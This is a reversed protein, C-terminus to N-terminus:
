TWRALCLSRWTTPCSSSRKALPRTSTETFYHFCPYIFILQFMNTYKEYTIERAVSAVEQIRLAMQHQASSFEDRHNSVIELRISEGSIDCYTFLPSFGVLEGEGMISMQKLMYETQTAQQLEVTQATVEGLRKERIVEEVVSRVKERNASSSAEATSTLRADMQERYMKELSQAKDALAHHHQQSAIDQIHIAKEIATLAQVLPKIQSGVSQQLEHRTVRDQLDSSLKRIESGDAQKYQFGLKISYLM